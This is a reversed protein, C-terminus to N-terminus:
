NFADSGCGAARAAALADALGDLKITTLRGNAAVQIQIDHSRSSSATGSNRVVGGSPNRLDDDNLAFGVGALEMDDARALLPAGNDIRYVAGSTDAHPSLHIVLAGRTYEAHPKSLRCGLHGTFGDAHVRLTWAAFRHTESAAGVHRAHTPLMLLAILLLHSPM